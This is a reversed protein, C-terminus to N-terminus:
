RGRAAVRRLRGQERQGLWAGIGGADELKKAAEGSVVEVDTEFSRALDLLADRLTIPCREGGCVSCVPDASRDTWGCSLCQRLDADFNHALLLSRVKGAQLQALTEDTGVVAGGESELLKNVLASEREREWKEIEPEVQRPLEHPALKGLNKRILVVRQRDEQPFERKIPEILRESGALFIAAFCEKERLHNAQEATERCLHEYQADMRNEFVDRQSGRTKRIGPRTVHGQDKKKWQSVDVVFVTERLPAMERLSYSFFRAGGRDVVVICYPKHEAALWQLQSVAAKGWHLENELEVQLPVTEWTAPGALIALGKERSIRDRLFEEVRDLQKRFLDREGVPVRAALSKAEKKLWILYRPVPTHQSAEASATDLYATLVPAPLESLSHLRKVSLM